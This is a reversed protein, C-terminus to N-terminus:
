RKKNDKRKRRGFRLTPTGSMDRSTNAQAQSFLDEAQRGINGLEDQLGRQSAQQRASYERFLQDQELGGQFNSEINTAALGGSYLHGAAATSNRNRTLEQQLTRAALAQRSYPDRPDFYEDFTSTQDESARAAALDAQRQMSSLAREDMASITLGTGQYPKSLISAPRRGNQNRQGAM